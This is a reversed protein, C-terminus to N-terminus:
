GADGVRLKLLDILEDVRDDGHTRYGVFRIGAAAAAERDYRSDGVMIVNEKQLRLRRLALLLMDPAPKSSEVDTAGVVLMPELGAYEVIREAMDTPTNTVIATRVWRAGLAEFLAPGQENLEIHEIYDIFHTNYYTEIDERTHHVFWTEVDTDVGQGWTQEYRERDIEPYGFHAATANILHYWAEYSDILVGDLDFLIGAM